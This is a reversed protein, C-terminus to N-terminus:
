TIWNCIEDGRLNCRPHSSQTSSGSRTCCWIQSVALCLESTTTKGTSLVADAALLDAAAEEWTAITFNSLITAAFDLDWKSVESAVHAIEHAVVFGIREYMSKTDYRDSAFPPVLIGPLLMSCPSSALKYANRALSSMLPPHQCADQQELALALRDLFVANGQKLLILLAGDDSRIIPREFADDRGFHSGRPAGAIKFNTSRARNALRLREAPDAVLGAMRGSVLEAAVAEKLGDIMPELQTLLTPTTLKEFVLEDLHDPFARKAAEWCAVEADPRAVTLLSSPASLASWTATTAELVDSAGFNVLRDPQSSGLECRGLSQMRRRPKGGFTQGANIGLEGDVVSQAAYACRAASAMLYAHFHQTNTEDVAYLVRELAELRGPSTVPLTGQITVADSLWTNVGISGIVIEALQEATPPLLMSLPVAIAEKVFERAHERTEYDLGFAYLAETAQSESLVMGDVATTLFSGGTSLGAGLQMPADCYFSSLVGLQEMARTKSPTSAGLKAVLFDFAAQAAPASAANSVMLECAKRFRSVDDTPVDRTQHYIQTSIKSAVETEDFFSFSSPSSTATIWKGCAREHPSAASPDAAEANFANPFNPARTCSLRGEHDIAQRLGPACVGRTLVSLATSTGDLTLNLATLGAPTVRNVFNCSDYGVAVCEGREVCLQQSTCQGSYVVLSVVSSVGLAVWLTTTFEVSM